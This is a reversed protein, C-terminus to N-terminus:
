YQKKSSFISSIKKNENEVHMSQENRDKEQKRPLNGQLSSNLENVVLMTSRTAPAYPVNIQNKLMYRDCLGIYYSRMMCSDLLYNNVRFDSDKALSFSSKKTKEACLMRIIKGVPETFMKQALFNTFKFLFYDSTDKLSLSFKEDLNIFTYKIRLEVSTTLHLNDLLLFYTFPKSDILDYINLLHFPNYGVTVSHESTKKPKAQKITSSIIRTASGSQIGLHARFDEDLSSGKRLLDVKEIFFLISEPRENLQKAFAELSQLSKFTSLHHKMCAETLNVVPNYTTENGVQAAISKVEEPRLPIHNFVRKTDEAFNKSCAIFRIVPEWNTGMIYNEFYGDVRNTLEVSVAQDITTKRNRKIKYPIM